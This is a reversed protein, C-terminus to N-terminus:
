GALDRRRALCSPCLPGVTEALKIRTERDLKGRKRGNLPLYSLAFISANASAKTMEVQCSKCNM